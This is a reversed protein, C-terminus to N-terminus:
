TRAPGLYLTQGNSWGHEILDRAVALDGREERAVRFVAIAYGDFRATAGDLIVAGRVEDTRLSLLDRRM